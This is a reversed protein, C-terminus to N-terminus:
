STEEWFANLILMKKKLDIIADRNYLRIIDNNYM